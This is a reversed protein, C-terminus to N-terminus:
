AGGERLKGSTGAEIGRLGEARLKKHLLSAGHIREMAWAHMVERAIESQDRGSSESEAALVCHTEPTFKGRFDKLEIGM